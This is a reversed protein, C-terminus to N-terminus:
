LHDTHILINNARKTDYWVPLNTLHHRTNEAYICLAEDEITFDMNDMANLRM